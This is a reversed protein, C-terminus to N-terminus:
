LQLIEPAIRREAFALSDRDFEALLERDIVLRQIVVEEAPHTRLEAVCLDNFDSHGCALVDAEPAKQHHQIQLSRDAFDSARAVEAALNRFAAGPNQQDRSTFVTRSSSNGV